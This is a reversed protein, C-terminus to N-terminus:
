PLPNGGQNAIGGGLFSGQNNTIASNTITATGTNRIGGINEAGNDRISSQDIEM